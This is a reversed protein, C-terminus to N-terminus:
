SRVLSSIVCEIIHYVPIESEKIEKPNIEARSVPDLYTVKINEVNRVESIKTILSKVESFDDTIEEEGGFDVGFVYSYSQLIELITDDLNTNQYLDLSIDFKTIVARGMSIEIDQTIYYTKNESIFKSIEDQNLPNAGTYPIYYLHLTPTVQSGDPILNTITDVSYTYLPDSFEINGQTKLFLSKYTNEPIVLTTEEKDQYVPLDLIPYTEPSLDSFVQFSVQKGSSDLNSTMKKIKVLGQFNMGNYRAKVVLNGESIKTSMETITVVGDDSIESSIDSSPIISYIADSVEQGNHYLIARTESSEIVKGEQNTKVYITDGSLDFTYYDGLNGGTSTVPIISFPIFEEDLLVEEGNITKYLRIQLPRDGTTSFFTNHLTLTLDETSLPIAQPHIKPFHYTIRFGSSLLESKTTLLTTKRFDNVLIRFSISPIGFSIFRGAETVQVPIVSVSPLIEYSADMLDGESSGSGRKYKFKLEGGPLYGLDKLIWDKLNLKDPGLFKGESIVPIMSSTIKTEKTSKPSEFRYTVGSRRIKEPYYEQLLWSLDSNTALYTGSYRAQNAKHHISDIADRSTEPLFVVGPYSEECGLNRLVDERPITPDSFSLINAGTMKIAKRESEQISSLQLYEYISIKYETNPAQSGQLSPQYYLRMGYGPITLDFPIDGRLHDAFIRTVETRIGQVDLYLDGSLNSVPITRYWPNIESVKWSDTTINKAMIGIITVINDPYVTLDSYKITKTDENYYGLYYLQYNNSRIIEQHPKFTFLKGAKINLIVRPNAGRFVSYMQNVCHQIKSNEQSARELSAEQSYAVNEVESIFLANGLMQTIMEVSEGHLNLNTAIDRLIKTYDSLSKM